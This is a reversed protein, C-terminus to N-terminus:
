KFLQFLMAYSSYVSVVVLMQGLHKLSRLNLNIEEGRLCVDKSVILHRLLPVQTSNLFLIEYCLGFIHM